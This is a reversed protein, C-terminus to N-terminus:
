AGLAPDTGEEGVAVALPQRGAFGAELEHWHAVEEEGHKWCLYVIRGDMMAPFDLLGETLTKPEVGLQRLEGVYEMLKEEDKELDREMQELEDGYPDNSASGSRNAKLFEFRQRRDLVDRSLEVVDAAIAKVLPLMKNAEEVTFIKEPQYNEISM